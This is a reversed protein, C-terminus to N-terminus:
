KECCTKKSKKGKLVVKKVGIKQKAHTWSKEIKENFDMEM